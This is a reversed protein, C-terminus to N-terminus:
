ITYNQEGEKFGAFYKLYINSVEYFLPLINDSIILLKQAHVIKNIKHLIWTESLKRFCIQLKMFQDKRLWWRLLILM